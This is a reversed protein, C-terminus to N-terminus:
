GTWVQARPLATASAVQATRAPETRASAAATPLPNTLTSEM